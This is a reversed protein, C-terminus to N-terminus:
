EPRTLELKLRMKVDSDVFLSGHYQQVPHIESNQMVTSREPIAEDGGPVTNFDLKEWDGRENRVVKVDAVTKIGYGFISISPVPLTTGLEKRFERATRLLPRQPEPLWSEDEFVDITQGNHDKVCSYVPLIQYMSPFTILVQRLRDGMLGFPLLDSKLVLNTLAKPVGYHPGGMLIARNVKRKGGLRAIYYRSVLCGLSHAILTVPGEVQWEDITQALKRASQRVDQRWDYAFELLNRGREYGLSEVFFDGMRNYQDQKILNPVVVVENVIGRAETPMEDPLALVEPHTFLYRVNPWIKENGQWLESGMLGPVFVVPKRAPSPLTETKELDQPSFPQKFILRADGIRFTDSDSLTHREIKHAGMWTGNTSNLDQIIFRDKEFLIQAHQRSVKNRPLYIGAETSRGIVTRDSLLPIEWTRDPTHIVLRPLSTNNITMAVTQLALTQDLELPTDIMTHEVNSQPLVMEFLLSSDGLRVMDGPQLLTRSVRAGNVWSGNASGLDVLYCAQNSFELRAHNRSIRADRLNIDNTTDRGLTINEAVLEFSQEKGDTTTLTLKGFPDM